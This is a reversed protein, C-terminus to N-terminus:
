QVAQWYAAAPFSSSRSEWLVASCTLMDALRKKLLLSVLGGGHFHIVLPLMESKKIRGRRLVVIFKITRCNVSAEGYYREADKFFQRQEETSYFSDANTSNFQKDGTWLGNNDYLETNM